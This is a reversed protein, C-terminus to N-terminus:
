HYPSWRSRCEKGVRREESRLIIPEFHIALRTPPGYWDIAQNTFQFLRGHITNWMVQDMNGLDFATAKFTDLDSSCVDSSWDRDSRTHRRRSSFFFIFLFVIYATPIITPVSFAEFLAFHDLFTKAGDCAVSAGVPVACNAGHVCTDRHM